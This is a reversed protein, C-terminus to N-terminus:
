RSEALVRKVFGDPIIVSLETKADQRSVQLSQFFRQVDADGSPQAGAEVSRFLALLASLQDSLREADAANASFAQARVKIGAAYQVSAVLVTDAPVFFNYGGPLMLAHNGAGPPALQSVAWAPATLPVRRYYRRLLEPSDQSFTWGRERDIIQRIVYPGETNSAAVKNDSLIAVRLTRGPLAIAYVDIDRYRETATALKRLYAALKQRDFRAVFVESYRTEGNADNVPRHAALAVQDLDREWQFDTARVFEDYEAEHEVSPLKRLADVARLPRLDAYVITDASPLLRAAEPPVTRRWLLAVCGAATLAVLLAAAVYIDRKRMSPMTATAAPPPM